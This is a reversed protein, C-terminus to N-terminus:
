MDLDHTDSAAHRLALALLQKIATETEGSWAFHWAFLLNEAASGAQKEDTLDLTLLEALSAVAKPSDQREVAGQHVAKLQQRFFDNFTM